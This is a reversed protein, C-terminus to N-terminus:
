TKEKRGGMERELNELREMIDNTETFKLGFSLISKAAELRTAHTAEEDNMIVYMRGVATSMMSQLRLTAAQLM